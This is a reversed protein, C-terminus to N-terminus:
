ICGAHEAVLEVSSEPLTTALPVALAGLRMAGLLVFVWQPVNEMLIGVRDGAKAGKEELLTAIANAYALVDAYGYEEVKDQQDIALAFRNPFRRYWEEIREFIWGPAPTETIPPGSAETLFDMGALMFTFNT